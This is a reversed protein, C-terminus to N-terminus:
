CCCEMTGLRPRQRMCGRLPAMGRGLDDNQFCRSGPQMRPLRPITPLTSAANALLGAERANAVLIQQPSCRQVNCSLHPSNPFSCSRQLPHLSGTRRGGAVCMPPKRSAGLCSSATGRQLPSAQCRAPSPARGCDRTKTAIACSHRMNQRLENLHGSRWPQRMRCYWTRSHCASRKPLRGNCPEPSLLTPPSEQLATLLCSDLVHDPPEALSMPAFSPDPRLSGSATCRQALSHEVAASQPTQQPLKAFRPCLHCRRQRSVSTPSCGQSAVAQIRNPNPCPSRGDAQECM